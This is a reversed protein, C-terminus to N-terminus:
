PAFATGHMSLARGDRWRRELEASFGEVDQGVFADKALLLASNNAMLVVLWSKTSHIVTIAPWGHRVSSLGTDLRLGDAALRVQNGARYREFYFAKTFKAQRRYLFAYSALLGLAGVMLQAAINPWSEALRNAALPISLALFGAFGYCLYMAASYAFGAGQPWRLKRWLSLLVRCERATFARTQRLEFAPTAAETSAM